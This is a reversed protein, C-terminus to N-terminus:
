APNANVTMYLIGGKSYVEIIELNHSGYHTLIKVDKIDGSQIINHINSAVQQGESENLKRRIVEGILQKLESKKM